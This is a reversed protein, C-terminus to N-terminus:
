WMVQLPFVFRVQLGFLEITEAVGLVSWKYLLKYNYLLYQPDYHKLEYNM